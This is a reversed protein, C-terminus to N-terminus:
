YEFISSDTTSKALFGGDVLDAFGRELTKDRLSAIETLVDINLVKKLM